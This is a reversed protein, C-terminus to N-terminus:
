EYRGIAKELQGLDEWEQLTLDNAKFPYGAIKLHRIRLMKLTYENFETRVKGCKHRSCTWELNDGFENLCKQYSKEDCL